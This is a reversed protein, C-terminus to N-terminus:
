GTEPCYVYVHYGLAVEAGVCFVLQGEEQGKVKGQWEVFQCRPCVPGYVAAFHAVSGAVRGIREKHYGFQNHIGPM